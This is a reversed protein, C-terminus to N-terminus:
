VNGLLLAIVHQAWARTTASVEGSNALSDLLAMRKQMPDVAGVATAPGALPTAVPVDPQQTPALLVSPIGPPVPGGTSPRGQPPPTPAVPDSSIPPAPPQQATPGPGQAAPLAQKLRNLDAKEGYTGSNPRNVSVGEAYDPNAV